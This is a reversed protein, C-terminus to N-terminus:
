QAKRVLIRNIKRHKIEKVKFVYGERALEEEAAPVRGFENLLYGAITKIGPSHLNTDMVQNFERLELRGLVEWQGEGVQSIEQVGEEEEGAEGFIEELLDELTAVGMWAGFENVVLAIHIRRNLFDKLLDNLKKQPPICFPRRVLSELSKPQPGTLLKILDKATIIGIIQDSDKQYVPVRSYGSELFKRKFEPFGLEVSLSFIEQRPTMVEAATLDGFEFINKLLVYETEDLIGEEEGMEVLEMLESEKIEEKSEGVKIGLLRLLAESIRRFLYRAPFILKHFWYFPETIYGALRTSFRIGITKPIIEGFVLLLATATFMSALTIYASFKDSRAAAPTSLFIRAFISAVLISILINVIENGILISTILKRPAFLLERLRQGLRMNKKEIEALAGRGILSFFTTEASSFFGSLVILIFVGALRIQLATEM